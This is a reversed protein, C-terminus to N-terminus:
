HGCFGQKGTISIDGWVMIRGGHFATVGDTCSDAYREGRRRWVNVRGDLMRQCFRSEGSDPETTSPALVLLLLHIATM